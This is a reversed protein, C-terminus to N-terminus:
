TGTEAEAVARDSTETLRALTSGVDSRGLGRLFLLAARHSRCRPGSPDVTAWQLLKAAHGFPTGPPLQLSRATADPLARSSDGVARLLRGADVDPLPPAGADIWVVFRREAEPLRLLDLGM